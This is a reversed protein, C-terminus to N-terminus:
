KEKELDKVVLGDSYKLTHICISNQKPISDLSIGHCIKFKQEHKNIISIFAYPAQYLSAAMKTLRHFCEENELLLVGMSKLAEIRGEEDHKLHKIKSM